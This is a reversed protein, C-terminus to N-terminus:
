SNCEEKVFTKAIMAVMILIIVYLLFGLFAKFDYLLMYGILIPFSIIYVIVLLCLFGFYVKWGTKLFELVNSKLDSTRGKFIM